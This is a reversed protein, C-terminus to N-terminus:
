IDYMPTGTKTLIYLHPSAGSISRILCTRGAEERRIAALQPEGVREGPVLIPIGPPYAYVYEGCICGAASEEPVSVGECLVAEAPTMCLDPSLTATEAAQVTRRAAEEEAPVPVAEGDIRLLADALRGYADAGDCPSTMLLVMSPRMMEPELRFDERLRRALEEGTLSTGGCFVAIKGPDFAYVGPCAEGAQAGHGFVRLGRLPRIRRDFEELREKWRLFMEAGDARLLATCADISAMLPYSPSSTEFVDLQREVEAERVSPLAERGIHLLATQTLAPLTKHTSQVVLDAGCHVASEPFFPVEFLGLHAGHAEDVFLPVNREHCIGAIARIDSVVGEYTPSTLIVARCDPVERLAQRVQQPSISGCIGYAGAPQPCIWHPHLGGLEIAHFVSKHCNRAAIIHSGFPALARIGALIGATSGGVLYWTRRSGWLAATRDMAERLIGDAGHLDDAGEIETMDIGYPATLDADAPLGSVRRLAEATEPDRKHGPMHFPYATGALASLQGALGEQRVNM